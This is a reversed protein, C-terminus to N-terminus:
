VRDTYTKIKLHSLIFDTEKRQADTKNLAHKLFTCPTQNQTNSYTFQPLM